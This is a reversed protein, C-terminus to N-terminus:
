RVAVNVSRPLSGLFATQASSFPTERFKLNRVAPMAALGDELDHVSPAHGIALSEIVPSAVDLLSIRLHEPTPHMAMLRVDRLHSLERLPGSDVLSWRVLRMEELRVCTEIGEISRRAGGGDLELHRLERLGSLPVLDAHPWPGFMRLWTLNPWLSALSAFRGSEVAASTVNKQLVEPIPARSGTTLTLEELEKLRFAATDDLTPISANLYRLGSFSGLFDLSDIRFRPKPVIHLGDYGGEVFRITEEPGFSQGSEPAWQM